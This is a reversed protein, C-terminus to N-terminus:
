DEGDEEENDDEREELNPHSGRCPMVTPEDGDEEDNESLTDTLSDDTIVSPDPSEPVRDDDVNDKAHTLRIPKPALGSKPNPGEEVEEGTKGNPQAAVSIILDLM